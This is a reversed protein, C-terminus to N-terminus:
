VCHANLDLHSVTDYRGPAAIISIEDNTELLRLGSALPDDNKVNVIYCRGGGNVFFGNVANALDNGAPYDPGPAFKTRFESWNNVAVIENVPASSDPAQALFAVTSTGVPVVMKPGQLEEIYVGPTRYIAM